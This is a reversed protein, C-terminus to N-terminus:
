AVAKKAAEVLAAGVSGVGTPTPTHLIQVALPTSKKLKRSM